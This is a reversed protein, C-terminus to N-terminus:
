ERASYPHNNADSFSYFYIPNKLFVCGQEVLTENEQTEDRTPLYKSHTDSFPPLVGNRYKDDAAEFMGGVVQCGRDLIAEDEIM